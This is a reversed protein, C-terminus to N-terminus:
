RRWARIIISTKTFFGACNVIRPGWNRATTFCRRRNDCHREARKMPAAAAIAGASAAVVDRVQLDIIDRIINKHLEAGSLDPNRRAVREHSRQWIPSEDLQDGNLIAFDLADDLDHSYYTIEDALDAIQAELLRPTLRRKRM